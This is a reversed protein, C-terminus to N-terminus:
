WQRNHCSHKQWSSRPLHHTHDPITKNRGQTNRARQTPPLGAL